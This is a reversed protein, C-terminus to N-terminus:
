KSGFLKKVEKKKGTIDSIQYGPSNKFQNAVKNQCKKSQTKQTSM